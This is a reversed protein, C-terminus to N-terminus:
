LLLLTWCAWLSMVWLRCYCWWWWWWRRRRWWWCCCFCTRLGLCNCCASSNYWLADGLMRCMISQCGFWYFWYSAWSGGLFVAEAICRKRALNREVRLESYRAVFM